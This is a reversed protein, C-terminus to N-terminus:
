NISSNFRICSLNILAKKESGWPFLKELLKLLRVLYRDKSFSILWTLLVWKCRFIALAYKIFCTHQYFSWYVKYLPKLHLLKLVVNFVGCVFSRSSWNKLKIFHLVTGAILYFDFTVMWVFATFSNIEPVNCVLFLFNKYFFTGNIGGWPWKNWMQKM